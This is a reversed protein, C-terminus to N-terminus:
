NCLYIAEEEDNTGWANWNNGLSTNLTASPTPRKSSSPGQSAQTASSAPRKRSTNSSGSGGGSERSGNERNVASSAGRGRNGSNAGRGRGSHIANSAGRGHHQTNSSSHTMTRSGGGSLSSGYGSDSSRNVPRVSAERINMMENFYPDCGGICATHSTGPIPYAGPKLKLKLKHVQSPCQGCIEDLVELVTVDQPLWIANNCNPYGTCGIYKGTGQRRDKLVMNLGCRPCKLVTPDEAPIINELQEAQAPPEDLYQSLATDILNARELAIKFVNRYKEIQEALVREPDKRGECIAKLDSELEARLNPKSMQFGMNDYGMVLGIGLKGPVFHIGDRLGVYERAKITDIHEAHTADTGIGHKDMLAILDAETLLNPPSTKEKVMEISTPTFTQGQQYAHIEKANWKEYIYVDLYNKAIIQLGSASFKEGAIDIDVTTEYGQADKSVCALFHRVVFEYVKAENGQLGSAAKTPHIPPHAQDSKKGVRPTVGDDLVRQAFEGWARDNVQQQVLTSLNLEKPFINTETRPYSILGQTYLKEAIKMTEKANMRLKRSGQKELEITDLPLPRWKSKPKGIVKEVKAIGHEQCIDLFVQCPLEEFLRYRAWRFEVFINDHDDIVKIKWYPEAQFREIDLFREVVFGLTPFQCSGYSILMEALTRPFVKQLRLTQFRTFAAGIRLDLQSRVEVADSILKDPEGLTQVARQVSARTIESFKARYIRLNPKVAKCIDIIEFGINEGERDCDTWIILTNCWKVERELTKKIKEMSETACQKVIPADFLALPHCGQWRRYSGVFEHNLLHGSVSTMIMKCNQNFLSMDFEYIKNYPSLGERRNSHGGSLLSAINKAADNKEAVNLVKMTNNFKETKKASIGETSFRLSILNVNRGIFFTWNIRFFNM